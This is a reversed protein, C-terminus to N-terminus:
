FSASHNRFMLCTPFSGHRFQYSLSLCVRGIFEAEMVTGFLWSSVGLYWSRGSSHFTQVECKAGGTKLTGGLFHVGLVGLESLWDPKCVESGSQLVPFFNNIPLHASALQIGEPSLASSAPLVGKECNRGPLLQVVKKVLQQKLTWDQYSIHKQSNIWKWAIRNMPSYSKM